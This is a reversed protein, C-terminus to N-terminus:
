HGAKILANRRQEITSETYGLTQSYTAHGLLDMVIRQNSESNVMDRVFNHRLQYMRFDTGLRRNTNGIRTAVVDSNLLRGTDDTFLYDNANYDMLSRVVTELRETIPNIRNSKETKAKVIVPKKNEDLGVRSGYRMVKNQFDFCDRSLAYCEAPRMGTESIIMIAYCILTGVVKSHNSRGSGSACLDTMVALVEDADAFKRREVHVAQSKPVDVVDAFNTAINEDMIGAKFIQVWLSRVRNITNQPQDILGNYHELLDKPKISALPKGAYAGFHANFIADHRRRTTPNHVYLELSRGYAYAVTYDAQKITNTITINRDDLLVADRWKIAQKLAKKEGGYQSFAFTKRKGKIRVSYYEHGNKNRYYSIYNTKM